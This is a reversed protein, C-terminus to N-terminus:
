EVTSAAECDERFTRDTGEQTYEVRPVEARKEDRLYLLSGQPAQLAARAERSSADRILRDLEDLRREVEPLM